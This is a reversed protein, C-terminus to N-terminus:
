YHPPKENAPADRERLTEEIGTLRKIQVLLVDIQDSLGRVVSDLDSVSKEVYAIKEELAELRMESENKV